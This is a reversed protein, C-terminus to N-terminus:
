LGATGAEPRGGYEKRAWMWAKELEGQNMDAVPKDVVLKM